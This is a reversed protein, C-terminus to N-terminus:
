RTAQLLEALSRAKMREMLRSRHSEVTRPSIGLDRGISKNTGGARLGALVELERHSLAELRESSSTPPAHDDGHAPIRWCAAQLATELEAATCPSVLYDVAGARMARVATAADTDPKGIVVVPLHARGQSLLRMLGDSADDLTNVDVLVCGSALFDAIEMFAEVSSFTKVAYGGSAPMIFKEILSGKIDGIFMIRQEPVPALQETIGCIAAVSGEDGKVPFVSERVRLAATGASGCIRYEHQEVAGGVVAEYRLAVSARDAEEIGAIWDALCAMPADGSQGNALRIHHPNRYRFQGTATDVIWMAACSQDAFQRLQGDVDSNLNTPATQDRSQLALMIIGVVKDEAPDRIPAASVNLWERSGDEGLHLLDIGPCVTQGDLARECPFERPTLPRGDSTWGHWRFAGHIPRSPLHPSAIKAKFYANAHALVGDRDYIAVGLPLREFPFAGGDQWELRDMARDVENLSSLDSLDNYIQAIAANNQATVSM